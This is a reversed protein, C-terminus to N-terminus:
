TIDLHSNEYLVYKIFDFDRRRADQYHKNAYNDFNLERAFSIMHKNICIDYLIINIAESGIEDYLYELYFAVEWDDMSKKYEYIFQMSRNVSRFFPPILKDQYIGSNDIALSLLDGYLKFYKEKENERFLTEANEEIYEGMAKDIKDRIIEMYENFTYPLDLSFFYKAVEEKSKRLEDIQIFFSNEFRQMRATKSQEQLTEKTSEMEKQLLSLERQQVKLQEQQLIYTRYIFLITVITLFPVTSGGLFDGYTGLKDFDLQFIKVLFLGFFPSVIAFIFILFILESVDFKKCDNKHNTNDKLGDSM